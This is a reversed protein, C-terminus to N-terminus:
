VEEILVVSDPEIYDNVKFYYGYANVYNTTNVLTAQLARFTSVRNTIICITSGCIVNSIYLNVGADFHVGVTNDVYTPLSCYTFFSDNTINYNSMIHVDCTQILDGGSAKGALETELASIATELSALKTTYANTEDVVDEYNSPIAGVTVAGTTYVGSAVATQSSTSPTITKAAQTTLQKTGTKTGASVYGASQTASATIKGASDISVTPTAQTATAVSKTTNTAYYGAPVNVTAGSATLDSSTKTPITGTIKNGNKDIAEKGSLIDSAAAPTSLEPLNIGGGGGAAKGDLASKIQSILNAQENVTADTETKKYPNTGTIIDGSKNHATSGEILTDTTVSDNTLDILTNGGYNIKNIAM